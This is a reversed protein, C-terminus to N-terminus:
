DQLNWGKTLCVLIYIGLITGIPFACLLLVAMIIAVVQGWKKHEMVARATIVQFIPYLFILLGVLSGPQPLQHSENYQNIIVISFLVLILLTEIGALIQILKAAKKYQIFSNQMNKAGKLITM